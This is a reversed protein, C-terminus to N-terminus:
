GRPIRATAHEALTRLVARDRAAAARPLLTLAHARSTLHARAARAARPWGVRDMQAAAQRFYEREGRFRRGDALQEMSASADHRRYAFCVEPEILLSGGDAVVDIVLALDQIIPLDDRFDHSQLADRRFALSPWYMWNGTLLSAALTEGQVLRRGRGRPMILHQKVHDVLTRAPRGASDVVLVGPQIITAGPVERHARSVVRVYNPLLLDDCGLVVVRDHQALQACRRFNGTIGLNVENRVYTVRADDLTSFWQAVAPDPYADDVVTLVWDDDDQALVSRVTEQLMGLEGWFPVLVELPM